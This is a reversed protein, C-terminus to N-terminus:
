ERDYKYYMILGYIIHLVGFGIAWIILGYGQIFLSFLGLAIECLALYRIDHVTYSSTNLLALGYFILTGPVIFFYDGHLLLAFCFLAGVALPVALNFIARWTTQDWLPVGAKKAKRSSFFWVALLSLILVAAADAFLFFDTAITNIATSVIRSSPIYLSYDSSTNGRYENSIYGHALFAGILAFAGACVGSIGSLSLFRSSRNMLDRMETLAELQKQSEDM